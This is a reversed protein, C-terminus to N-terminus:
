ETAETPAGALQRCRECRKPAPVWLAWGRAAGEAGCLTRPPNGPEAEWLPAIRHWPVSTTLQVWTM